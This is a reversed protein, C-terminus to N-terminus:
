NLVRLGSAAAPPQGGSGAADQAAARAEALRKLGTELGVLNPGFPYSAVLATASQWTNKRPPPSSHPLLPGVWCRATPGQWILRWVDWCAFGLGDRCAAAAPGCSRGRGRVQEPRLVGGYLSLLFTASKWTFELLCRELRDLVEETGDGAAAAAGQQRAVLAEREALWPDVTRHWMELLIRLQSEQLPSMGMEEVVMRWHEASPPDDSVTLTDINVLSANHIPFPNVCALAAFEAM